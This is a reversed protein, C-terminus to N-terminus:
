ASWGTWDRGSPKSDSNRSGGTSVPRTGGHAEQWWLVTAYLWLLVIGIGIGIGIGAYGAAVGGRGPQRVGEVGIAMVALGAGLIVVGAGARWVAPHTGFDVGYRKRVWRLGFAAALLAFPFILGWITMTEVYPAYGDGAL